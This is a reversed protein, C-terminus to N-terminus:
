AVAKKMVKRMTRYELEIRLRELGVRSEESLPVYKRDPHKLLAAIQVMLGRAIAVKAKKKAIKGGSSAIRMGKFKLDTDKSNEKLVVNACEIFVTRVLENGAKTMGLQPDSTGSQFTKPVMGFYPGIDRAHEFRDIDGGIAAVFVTAGIMGVGFVEKARDVMAKFEPEQALEAIMKDYASIKLNNCEVMQMVPWVLSELEKPWSTKDLKHFREASCEPLRYGMSKAFCRVQVIMSNRTQMLLNRAEHYRLMLQYREDRLKVPRMLEIDALALRALTRADNKDNKTNSGTILKIAAPNVVIPKLDLDEVLQKIWRCHTGTEFVVATGKEFRALVESFGQKTTDCTTEIDIRREAGVKTMKCIKSKKDSVDIGITTYYEM